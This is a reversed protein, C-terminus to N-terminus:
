KLHFPHTSLPKKAFPHYDNILGIAKKNRIGHVIEISKKSEAINFGKGELIHEYSKTHLAGFGDSFDIEENDLLMSRFTTAGAKQAKIPLTDANISLFWRV